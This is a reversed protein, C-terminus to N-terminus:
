LQDLSERNNRRSNRLPVLYSLFDEFPSKRQCTVLSEERSLLTISESM